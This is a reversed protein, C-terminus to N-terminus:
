RLKAMVRGDAYAGERFAELRQVGESVFGFKEYLAVARTNDTFVDLEVRAVQRAEAERMLWAMLREGVGRGQWDSRVSMGLSWVHQRRSSLAGHLGCTAVIEEGVVGVFSANRLPDNGALRKRWAAVSGFPTQLTAWCVGPDALVAAFGPADDARTERIAFADPLPSRNRRPFERETTSAAGGPRVWAYGVSDVLDGRREFDRKRVIELDMDAGQAAPQLESDFPLVVDLRDLNWWDRALDRLARLLGPAEDPHAILEVHGAHRLRPRDSAFLSAAGLLREGEFAGLSIRGPMPACWAELEAAGVDHEGELRQALARVATLDDPELTRLAM